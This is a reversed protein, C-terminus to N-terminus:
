VSMAADRLGAADDSYLRCHEVNAGSATQEPVIRLYAKGGGDEVTM